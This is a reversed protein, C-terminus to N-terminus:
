YFLNISALNECIDVFLYMKPHSKVPSIVPYFHHKCECNKSVSQEWLDKFLRQFYVSFIKSLREINKTKSVVFGSWYYCIWSDFRQEFYDIDFINTQVKVTTQLLLCSQRSMSRQCYLIRVFVKGHMKLMKLTLDSMYKLHKYIQEFVHAM